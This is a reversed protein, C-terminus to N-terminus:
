SASQATGKCPTDRYSKDWNVGATPESTMSKIAEVPDIRIIRQGIRIHPLEGAICMRKITAVSVDLYKGFDEPSMCKKEVQM